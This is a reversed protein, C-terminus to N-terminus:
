QNDVGTFNVINKGMPALLRDMAGPTSGISHLIDSFGGERISVSDLVESVSPLQAIDPALLM